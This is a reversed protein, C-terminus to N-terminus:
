YQKAWECYKFSNRFLKKIKGTIRIVCTRYSVLSATVLAFMENKKEFSVGFDINMFFANKLNQFFFFHFLYWFHM